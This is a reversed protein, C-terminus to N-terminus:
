KTDMRTKCDDRNPLSLQDSLKTQRGPTVHNNHPEEERHWPKTQLKHNHYKRIMSVIKPQLKCITLAWLFLHDIFICVNLLLLFSFFFISLAM